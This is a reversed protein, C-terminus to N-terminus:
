PVRYALLIINDCDYRYHLEGGPHEHVWRQLEEIRSPPAIITEGSVPDLMDIPDPFNVVARSKSLFYTSPHSGHIYIGDSLLYVQLENTISGVETGLYSAFRGALDSAFRCKGAYDGYYTWLNFIILSALVASVAFRYANRMVAWGLGLFDLIADLGQAAFLMAVPIAMLMRYSDASPPTAFIGVAFVSGWLYGNLLLYVPNRIRWIAIGLGAMFMVSSVMSMMPVTSGYFDMAPYYFLSLFAHVFRGALIQLPGQGTLDMTAQLWGSQFTGSSDIRSIFEAPSNYIYVVSPLISILFGGWFAFAQSLREKFWARYFVATILMYILVLGTIIQSTLYFSYHIALLVGSLATRWSERKELGSLLFYLELPILWTDQIYAVSSIRSFHIHSHSFALMVAAILAIRYGGVWRAFIYIAPIALVGGVAPLFRLGFANVGFIRMSFNILQLYLGGFNEWLAFPNSLVGNTTFQANMGVSGEDGDLVRPIDGLLYFRAMAAFVMILAVTIIESRYTKFWEALTGMGATEDDKSFAYVYSVGGLLWVTVVPIYNVRTYQMFFYTAITALVSFLTGAFIWFTRENFIQRNALRLWFPIPRIAQSLVLIGVGLIALSAYPPILANEVIPQSFVLFQSLLLVFVGLFAVPRQVRRVDGHIE